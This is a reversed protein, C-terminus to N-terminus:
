YGGGGRGGYPHSRYQGKAGRTPPPAKMQGVNTGWGDGYGEDYQGGAGHGYEYYQSDVQGYSQDGYGGDYGGQDGYGENYSQDYGYDDYSQEMPPPVPPAPAARGRGAAMGGRPPGGRTPPTGRGAPAGRSPPPIAGGRGSPGGRGGPNTLLGGRPAGRPPTQGPPAGGRGRGRGRGGGGGGDGGNLYMLEQLQQQRIEDNYDNPILYKQLETFAHSMRQYADSAEAYVEVLVHLDENLHSYKGGEKRLEDEKAKDRMSGKGLISMKTMTEEQLRKLSNGKPGLLKGVFNFKPFEKVPIKIKCSHKYPKGTHIEFCPINKEDKQSGAPANGSQVREIEESILRAAHSSPALSSVEGQLEDLYTNNQMPQQTDEEAM